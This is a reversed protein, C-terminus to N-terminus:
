FLGFVDCSCPNQITIIEGFNSKKKFTHACVFDLHTSSLRIALLIYFYFPPATARCPRLQIFPWLNVQAHLQANVKDNSDTVNGRRPNHKHTHTCLLIGILHCCALFSPHSFRRDLKGGRGPCDM